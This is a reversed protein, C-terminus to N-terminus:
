RDRCVLSRSRTNSHLFFLAWVDSTTACVSNFRADFAFSRAFSARVSVAAASAVAASASNLAASARALAASALAASASALARRSARGGARGPAGITSGGM